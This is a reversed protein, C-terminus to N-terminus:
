TGDNSLQYSVNLTDGNVVSRNGGTFAGASFLVGTTGGKTSNSILFAGYVTATSTISFASAASTAIVSPDATTSAGFTAAPRTSQSYGTFEAWSNSGSGNTTIGGATNSSTITPSPSNNVLGLYWTASYTSGTFYKDNMDKLGTQTVTNHFSEEWKVNGDKDQCVVTFVGGVRVGNSAETSKEVGADVRDSIKTVDHQM